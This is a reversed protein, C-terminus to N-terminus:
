YKVSQVFQLFAAKQHDVVTADGMLKYFWTQGNLPLSVGVLRAPQGTKADTGTLDVESAPGAQTTLATVGATDEVAPLSIQRRWRNLNALLGGVDGPFSSVTMNAQQGNEAISFKALLMQSPPESTWGAPVTWNPLAAAPANADAPGGMPPIARAMDPHGAPLAASTDPHGAPLAATTDPAAFQISKLFSILNDKQSTVSADDGTAKFFWMMDERHLGVALIRQAVTAGATTGVIDYLKAASDGVTVDQSAKPLDEETLPSLGVQGRWRNENNLDGGARGALPVISRDV